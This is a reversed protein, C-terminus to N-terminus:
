SVESHVESCELNEPPCAELCGESAAEPLLSGKAAQARGDSKRATGSCHIACKKGLIVTKRIM